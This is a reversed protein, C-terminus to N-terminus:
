TKDNYYASSCLKFFPAYVIQDFFFLFNCILKSPSLHFDYKTKGVDQTEYRINKKSKKVRRNKTKRQKKRNQDYTIKKTKM